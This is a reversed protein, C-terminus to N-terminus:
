FAVSSTRNLKPALYSRVQFPVHRDSGSSGTAPALSVPRILCSSQHGLLHSPRKPAAAWAIVDAAQLGQRDRGRRHINLIM